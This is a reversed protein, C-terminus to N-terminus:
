LMPMSTPITKFECCWIMVDVKGEKLLRLKASRLALNAEVGELIGEFLYQTLRSSPEDYVKFLTSVVNKAGAYLFGRNVAMMGEGKALQGIGSECSSLVVLDAQLNLHYTEEMSLICDTIPEGNWSNELNTVTSFTEM